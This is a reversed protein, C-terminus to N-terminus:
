RRVGIAVAALMGLWALAIAPGALASGVFVSLSALGGAAVAAGLLAWRRGRDAIALGAVGALVALSAFKLTSGFALLPLYAPHLDPWAWGIRFQIATEVVDGVLAAALVILGLRLLRGSAFTALAFGLFAGYAPIYGILDVRNMRNLAHAADPCALVAALAEPTRAFQFALLARTAPQEQAGCGIPPLAAFWVTMVLTAIGAAFAIRAATNRALTM